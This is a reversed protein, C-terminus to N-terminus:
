RIFNDFDVISSAGDLLYWEGGLADGTRSSRNSTHLLLV